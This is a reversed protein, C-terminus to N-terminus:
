VVKPRLDRWIVDLHDLDDLVHLQFMVRQCGADAYAALREAAEDVPGVIWRTRLSEYLPKWDPDGRM